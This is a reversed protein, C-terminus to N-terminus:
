KNQFEQVNDLFRNDGMLSICGTSRNIKFRLTYKLKHSAYCTFPIARFKTIIYIGFRELDSSSIIDNPLESLEYRDFHYTGHDEYVSAIIYSGEQKIIIDEKALLKM